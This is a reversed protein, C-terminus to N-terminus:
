NTAHQPYRQQFLRDAIALALMKDRGSVELQHRNDLVDSGPDVPKLSRCYRGIFRMPKCFRQYLRRRTAINRLQKAQKATHHFELIWRTEVM